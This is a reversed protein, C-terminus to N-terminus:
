DRTQRVLVAGTGGGLLDATLDRYSFFRGDARDYFEKAVGATVTLGAATWAAERYDLGLSRGIAHGASQIAASGLFHYLKDRGLWPDEPAREPPAGFRGSFLVIALAFKM